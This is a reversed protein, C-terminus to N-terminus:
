RTRKRMFEVFCRLKMPVQRRSAYYVHFGPLVPSADKLVQKLEGAKIHPKAASALGYALGLGDLALTLMSATDNVTCSGDVEVEVPKGGDLLEWRFIRGTSPFRFRICDHNALDAIM